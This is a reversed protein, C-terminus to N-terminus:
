SHIRALIRGLRRLPADGRTGALEAAVARQAHPLMGFVALVILFGLGTPATKFLSQTVVFALGGAVLVMASLYGLSFVWAFAREGETPLPPEM